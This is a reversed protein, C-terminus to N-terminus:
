EIRSLVFIDLWTKISGIPQSNHKRSISSLPQGKVLMHVVNGCGDGVSEVVSVKAYPFCHSGSEPGVSSQPILLRLHSNVNRDHM